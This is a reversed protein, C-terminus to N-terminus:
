TAPDASQQSRKPKVGHVPVAVDTVTCDPAVEDPILKVIVGAPPKVPVTLKVAVLLSPIVAVVDKLEDGTM